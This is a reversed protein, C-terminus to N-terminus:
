EKPKSSMIDLLTDEFYEVVRVSGVKSFHDANSFYINNGMQSICMGDECFPESPDLFYVNHSDKFYNKMFNNIDIASQEQPFSNSVSSIFSLYSPKLLNDIYNLDGQRVPSEGMVIIKRDKGILARLKEIKECLLRYAEVKSLKAPEIMGGTKDDYVECFSFLRFRWYYSLVLTADPNEKLIKIKANIVSDVDINCKENTSGMDPLVFCSLYSIHVKMAHKKVMVSDLGAAFHGSHSDGLWVMDINNKPSLDNQIETNFTYYAGGWNKYHYKVPVGIEKVLNLNKEGLRWLWGNKASVDRKVIYSGGMFFLFMFGMMVYDLKINKFKNRRLPTEYYKYVMLSIGISISFLILGSVFNIPQSYLHKYYVIIPWHLLYITYSANGIQRFVNNDFFWKFYNSQPAIILLSIGLCPIINLVSLYILTDDFLIGPLIILLFGMVTILGKAKESKIHIEPIFVLLSGM